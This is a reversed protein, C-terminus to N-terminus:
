KAVTGHYETGSMNANTTISIFPEKKYLNFLSIVFITRKNRM